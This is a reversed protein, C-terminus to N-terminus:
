PRLRLSRSQRRWARSAAMASTEDIDTPDIHGCHESAIHIQRGLFDSVADDRVHISYRAVSEWKEDTLLRDLAGSVAHSLKRHPGRVGFHRV